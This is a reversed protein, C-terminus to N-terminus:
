ARTGSPLRWTRWRRTGRSPRTGGRRRGARVHRHQSASDPELEVLHSDVETMREVPAHELQAAKDALRIWAKPFPAQASSTSGRPVRRGVGNASRLRRGAWAYWILIPVGRAVGRNETCVLFSASELIAVCVEGTRPEPEGVQAEFDQENHRYAVHFIRRDSVELGTQEEAFSKTAHWVRRLRMRVTPGRYSSCRCAALNGGNSSRMFTVASVTVLPALTSMGVADAGDGTWGSFATAGVCRRRRTPLSAALILTRGAASPGAPRRRPIGVGM